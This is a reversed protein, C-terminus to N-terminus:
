HILQHLFINFFFIQEPNATQQIKHFHKIEINSNQICM